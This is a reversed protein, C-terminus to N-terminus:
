AALVVRYRAGGERVRALARDADALPRPEVQAGVGHRAAMELMERIAPRSGIVSATVAKQGGLLAGVHLSLPAAPVGLFCLVGNPRLAGVLANWDQKVFV